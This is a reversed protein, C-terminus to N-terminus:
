DKYDPEDRDLLRMLAEADPTGQDAEYLLAVLCVFADAERAWAVAAWLNEREALLARRGESGSWVGEMPALWAVLRDRTTAVLDLAELQALAYERVPQLLDFRPVGASPVPQLLSADRLALLADFVDAGGLELVAEAAELTFGGRFVACQAAARQEAESLLAWSWAVSARLSLQRPPLDRSRARLWGVQQTLRQELAEVSLLALGAAALRIALPMGQLLAVLREASARDLSAGLGARTADARQRLLTIADDTPLPGLELCHEAALDLRTRSTLLLHLHPCGALLADVVQAVPEIVQEVNDLVLLTRQAGLHAVIAPLTRVDAALTGSIADLVGRHDVTDALACFSVRAGERGQRAAFERVLTTKGCGGPGLVTVLRAQAWAAALAALEPARGVFGPKPVAPDVGRVAHVVHVEAVFRYGRGPVTQLFRFPRTRDGLARRLKRILQELSNDTVFVGPWLAEMLRDRELLEGPHQLFQELAALVKPQVPLVEGQRRLQFADPAFELDGFRYRPEDM